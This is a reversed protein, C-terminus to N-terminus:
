PKEVDGIAVDLPLKELQDPTKRSMLKARSTANKLFNKFIESPPKASSQYAEFDFTSFQAPSSTEEAFLSTFSSFVILMVALSRPNQM